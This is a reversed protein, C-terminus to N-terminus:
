KSENNETKQNIYEIHWKRINERYISTVSSSLHTKITKKLEKCLYAALYKRLSINSIISISKMDKNISAFCSNVFHITKSKKNNGELETNLIIELIKASPINDSCWGSSM